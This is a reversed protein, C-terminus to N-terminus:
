DIATYNSCAGASTGSTTTASISTASILPNDAQGTATDKYPRSHPYLYKHGQPPPTLSVRPPADVSPTCQVITPLSGRPSLKYLVDPRTSRTAHKGTQIESTSHPRHQALAEATVLQTSTADRNM